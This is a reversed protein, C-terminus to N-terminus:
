DLVVEATHYLNFISKSHNSNTLYIDIKNKRRERRFLKGGRCM